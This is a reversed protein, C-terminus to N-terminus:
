HGDEESPVQEYIIDLGATEAYDHEERAGESYEWGDLMYIADCKSLLHIDIDLYDSHTFSEPMMLGISAPNIVEHGGARLAQEAKNFRLLYERVTLGTIRGSIYIRM